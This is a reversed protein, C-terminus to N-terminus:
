QAATTLVIAEELDPVYRKAPNAIVPVDYTRSGISIQSRESLALFRPQKSRETVKMVAFPLRKVRNVVQEPDAADAAAEAVAAAWIKNSGPKGSLYADVAALAKAQHPQGLRLHPIVSALLRRLEKHREGENSVGNNQLTSDLKDVVQTIREDAFSDVDLLRITMNDITSSNHRRDSTSTTLLVVDDAREAAKLAVSLERQQKAEDNLSHLTYAFVFLGLAAPGTVALKGLLGTFEGNMVSVPYVGYLALTVGLALLAANAVPSQIRGSVVFIQVLVLAIGIVLLVYNPKAAIKGGATRTGRSPTRANLTDTTM